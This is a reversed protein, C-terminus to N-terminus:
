SKRAGIAVSIWGALFLVGGIPTIAGLIRVDTLALAYLSGSFILIGVAWLQCARKAWPKEATGSSALALIALTHMMQYQTGTHFVELAHPGLMGKLAHTAFAGLAVGLFGFIGAVTLM